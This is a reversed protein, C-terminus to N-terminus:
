KSKKRKNFIKTEYIDYGRLRIILKYNKPLQTLQKNKINNKVVNLTLM